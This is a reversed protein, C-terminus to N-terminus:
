PDPLNNRSPLSPHVQDDIPESLFIVDFFPETAIYSRSDALNRRMVAVLAMQRDLIAQFSEMYEAAAADMGAQLMRRELLLWQSAFAKSAQQGAVLRDLLMKSRDDM